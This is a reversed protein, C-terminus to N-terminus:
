SYGWGESGGDNGDATIVRYFLSTPPAPPGPPAVPEVGERVLWEGTIKNKRGYAPVLRSEVVKLAAGAEWRVREQIGDGLEDWPIETSWFQHVARAMQEILAERYEAPIM